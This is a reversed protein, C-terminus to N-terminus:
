TEHPTSGSNQEKKREEKLARQRADEAIAQIAAMANERIPGDPLTALIGAVYNYDDHHRPDTSPPMPDDTLGLLYDVSTGLANAIRGVVVAQAGPRENNEIRSIQASTTQAKHALQGQTWDRHERLAKVRIGWIHLEPM